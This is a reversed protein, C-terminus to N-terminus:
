FVPFAAYHGSHMVESVADHGLQPLQARTELETQAMSVSSMGMDITGLFARQAQGMGQVHANQGQFFLFWAAYILLSPAVQRCKCVALSDTELPCKLPM